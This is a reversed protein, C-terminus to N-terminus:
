PLVRAAAMIPRGEFHDQLNQIFYRKRKERVDEIQTGVHPTLVVRDSRRLEEPVRPEDEFVDLAAARISGSELARIMAREDVIPGRAINVLTGQPGLAELVEANILGRTEPTNPCCLVLFDSDRALTVLDAEFVYPVDPKPRRGCYSITMDFAAARKAVASGITGLGVIGCRRGALGIGMRRYPTGAWEGSRVFSDGGPIWRAAALLLAIGLEAVGIKSDDPTVTVVINRERAAELDLESVGAGWVSVIEVQPLRDLLERKYGGFGPVVLGRVRPGVDALFADRDDAENLLHVTYLEELAAVNDPPLSGSILIEIPM